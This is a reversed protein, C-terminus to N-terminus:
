AARTHRPPGPPSEKKKSEHRRRARRLLRDADEHFLFEDEADATWQDADYEYEAWAPWGGPPVGPRLAPGCTAAGRGLSIDLWGLTASRGHALELEWLERRQAERRELEALLVALSTRPLHEERRVILALMVTECLGHTLGPLRKEKFLWLGCLPLGNYSEGCLCGSHAAGFDGAYPAGCGYCYDTGCRCVLHPCGDERRALVFCRPCAQCQGLLGAQLPDSAAAAVLKELRSSCSQGRLLERCRLAEEGRFSGQLVARVDEDVLHYRCSPGPCRINWMGDDLVKIEVHRQLCPWCVGHADCRDSNSWSHNGV